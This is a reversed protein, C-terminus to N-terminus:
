LRKKQKGAATARHGLVYGYRFATEIADFLRGAAAMDLLRLVETYSLDYAAPIEGKDFKAATEMMERKAM